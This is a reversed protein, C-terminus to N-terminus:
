RNNNHANFARMFSDVTSYVEGNFEIHNLNTCGTFVDQGISTVSNPININTLNVCYSFAERGISTVFNPINIDTLNGCDTFACEEINTVTSPINIRTLNKCGFFAHSAIRTVGHQIDVRRLNDCSSFANRGMSTVSSPVSIWTLSGCGTFAFCGISTVSNPITVEELMTCCDFTEELSAVGDPIAIQSPLKITAGRLGCKILFDNYDVISKLVKNECPDFLFIIKKNGKTFTVCCGERPDYNKIELEIEWEGTRRGDSNIIGNNKLIRMYSLLDFSHPLHIQLPCEQSFCRYKKNVMEFNQFDQISTFYRGIIKASSYDIHGIGNNAPPNNEGKPECFASPMALLIGFASLTTTVAKKIFNKMSGNGKKLM